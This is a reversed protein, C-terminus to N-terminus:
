LTGTVPCKSFMGQMTMIEHHLILEQKSNSWSSKMKDRPPPGIRQSDIQQLILQLILELPVLKPPGNKVM